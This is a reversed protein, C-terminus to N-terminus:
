WTLGRRHVLRDDSTSFGLALESRHWLRARDPRSLRRDAHRRGGAAIAHIGRSSDCVTSNVTRCNGGSGTTAVSLARSVRWEGRDVSEVCVSGSSALAALTVDRGYDFVCVWIAAKSHSKPSPLPQTAPLEVCGVFVAVCSTVRGEPHCQASLGHAPSISPCCTRRLRPELRM